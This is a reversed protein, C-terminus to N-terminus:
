VANQKELLLEMGMDIGENVAGRLEQLPVVTDDKLCLETAISLMLAVLSGMTDGYNADDPLANVMLRAYERKNEISM